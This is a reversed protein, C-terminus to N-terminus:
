KVKFFYPFTYSINVFEGKHIGPELEPLLGVIMEVEREIVPNPARVKPAVFRGTKNLLLKIYIRTEGKPLGLTQMLKTNFTNDFHEQINEIFCEKLESNNGDCNPFVPMRNVDSLPIFVQENAIDTINEVEKEIKKVEDQVTPAIEKTTNNTKKETDWESNSITYNYNKLNFVVRRNKQKNEETDNPVFPSNEGLSEIFLIKPSIGISVLYNKVVKAREEAVEFNFENTNNNDTHGEISYNLNKSKLLLSAIKNLHKKNESDLLTQKSSYKLEKSIKNISKIFEIQAISADLIQNELIQESQQEKAGKSPSDNINEEIETTKQEKTESVVRIQNGEINIFSLNKCKKINSPMSGTINNQPINLITLETLDGIEHPIIGSLNNKYLNIGNVHPVGNIEVLSVGYWTDVPNNTNWNSNDFWNSGNTAHYFKLLASKEHAPVQGFLQSSLIFFISLLIYRM